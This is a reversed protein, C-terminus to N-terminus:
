VLLKTYRKTYWLKQNRIREIVKTYWNYISVCKYQKMYWFIKKQECNGVVCRKIQHIGVKYRENFIKLTKEIVQITM